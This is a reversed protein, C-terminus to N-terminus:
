EKSPNSNPLCYRDYGYKILNGAEVAKQLYYAVQRPSVRLLKIAEGRSITGHAKLYDLIVDDFRDEPIAGAPYYTKGVKVVQKREVLRGLQCRVDEIPLGLEEAVDKSRLMGRQSLMKLIAGSDDSEVPKPERKGKIDSLKLSELGGVILAQRVKRSVFAPELPKNSRM